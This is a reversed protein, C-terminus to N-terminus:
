RAAKAKTGAMYHKSTVAKSSHQLLDTAGDGALQAARKRCDRLILGACEPVTKAAIARAANFRALLMRYTVPKRGEALLFLHEAKISKRREVVALLVSDTVDITHPKGTKQATIALATGRMDSLRLAVVDGVRLGTATAIDLYDRLLCGGSAYVAAFMADTVEVTRPKETNKWRSKEHGVGPWQVTTIGKRVAWRWILSLLAMERNGQTKATRKELYADLTPMGINEWAAPSFVPRIHRLHKTYGAKTEPKHAPLVEAEWRAFAEEITGKVRGRGAKIDAYRKLAEAYDTGLPINKEGEARRDLSYSVWRQGAKGKRVHTRLGPFRTKKPM